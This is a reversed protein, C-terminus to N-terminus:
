SNETFLGELNNETLKTTFHECNIIKKRFINLRSCWEMVVGADPDYLSCNEANPCKMSPCKM